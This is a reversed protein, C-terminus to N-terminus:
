INNKMSLILEGLFKSDSNYGQRKSIKTLLERENKTLTFTYNKRKENNIIKKPILMNAPAGIKIIIDEDKKEKEFKNNDM